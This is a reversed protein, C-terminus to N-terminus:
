LAKRRRIMTSILGFGALLMAYTEPEPVVSASTIGSESTFSGGPIDIFLRTTHSFDTISQVSNSNLNMSLQVRSTEQYLPIRLTIEDQGGDAIGGSATGFSGGLFGIHDDSGCGANEAGFICTTRVSGDAVLGPIAENRARLHSDFYGKSLPDTEKLSSLTGQSELRLTLFTPSAPSATPSHVTLYDALSITAHSALGGVTPGASPLLSDTYLKFEGKSLDYSVSTSAHGQAVPNGSTDIIPGTSYSLNESYNLPFGTRVSFSDNKVPPLAGGILQSPVFFQSVGLTANAYSLTSSALLLIGIVVPKLIM